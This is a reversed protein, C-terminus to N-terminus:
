QQSARFRDALELIRTRIETLIRRHTAIGEGFPDQISWDEFVKGHFLGAGPLGSMNVIFDPSVLHSSRLGKSFQGDSAIGEEKLVELTTSDVFGLPHLGASEAVIIDSVYHRALAEAMQSRVCNGMCVFLVRFQRPM